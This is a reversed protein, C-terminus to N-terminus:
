FPSVLAVISYAVATYCWLSGFEKSSSRSASFLATTVGILILPVGPSFSSTVGRSRSSMVDRQLLLPLFLGILYLVTILGGGLFDKSKNSEWVLHGHEGVTSKFRETSVRYLTYVVIGAYLISMVYLLTSNTDIYGAYSQVLPQLTLTVLILATLVGTSTPSSISRWIGAEFLQILTFTFIFTANWRDYGRNRRWLFLAIINALLWATISSGFSFCM